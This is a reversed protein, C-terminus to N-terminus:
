NPKNAVVRAIMIAADVKGNDDRAMRDAM